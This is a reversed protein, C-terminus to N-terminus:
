GYAAAKGAFSFCASVSDGIVNLYFVAAAPHLFLEIQQVRLKDNGDALQSDLLEESFRLQCINYSGLVFVFFETMREIDNGQRM